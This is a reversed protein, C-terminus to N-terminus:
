SSACSRQSSGPRSWATITMCALNTNARCITLKLLCSIRGVDFGGFLPMTVRMSRAQSYGFPSRLPVPAVATGSHWVHRASRRSPWRGLVGGFAILVGARVGLGANATADAILKPTWTNAFYFSVTLFAFGVWLFVTRRLLVGSFIARAGAKVVGAGRPQPLEAAPAYGLKAAIRNYAALAGRPRWEVLYEISEPLAILAVL